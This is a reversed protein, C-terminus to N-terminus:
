PSSLDDGSGADDRGDRGISWVRLRGALAGATTLPAVRLPHKWADLVHGDADLFRRDVALGGAEAVFGRYDARVAEARQAATFERGGGGLPDAPDREPNGDLIGDANLDWAPRLVSRGDSQPITLDQRAHQTMVAQVSRVVQRTADVKAKRVVVTYAALGMGTLTAIIAMAILLEILSFGDCRSQM